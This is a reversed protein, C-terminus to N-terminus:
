GAKLRGRKPKDVSKTLTLHTANETTTGATTEPTGGSVVPATSQEASGAGQEKDAVSEPLVRAQLQEVSFPIDFSYPSRLRHHSWRVSLEQKAEDWAVRPEVYAGPPLLRKVAEVDVPIKTVFNSM